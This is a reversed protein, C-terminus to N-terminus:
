RATSALPLHHQNAENTGSIDRSLTGKLQRSKNLRQSKAAFGGGLMLNANTQTAARRGGGGGGGSSCVKDEDLPLSDTEAFVLFCLKEGSRLMGPLKKRDKAFFM